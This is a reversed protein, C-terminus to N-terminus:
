YFFIFLETCQNFSKILQEYFTANVQQKNLPILARRIVYLSYINDIWVLNPCFVYFIYVAWYTNFPGQIIIPYCRWYYCSFNIVVFLNLVYICALNLCEWKLVINDLKGLTVIYDIYLLKANMFRTYELLYPWTQKRISM